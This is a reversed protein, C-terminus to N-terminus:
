EARLAKRQVDFDDLTDHKLERIPANFEAITEECSKGSNIVSMAIGNAEELSIGLCYGLSTTKTYDITKDASLKYGEVCEKLLHIATREKIIPSTGNAYKM